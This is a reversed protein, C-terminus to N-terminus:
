RRLQGARVAARRRRPDGRGDHRGAAPLGQPPQMPCFLWLGRRPNRRTGPRSRWGRSCSSAAAHLPGATDADHLLVISGNGRAVIHAELRQWTAAVLRAFGARAAPSADPSDAALVTEWRPPGSM